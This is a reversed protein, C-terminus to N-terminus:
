GDMFLDALAAGAEIDAPNLAELAIPDFQADGSRVGQPVAAAMQGVVPREANITMYQEPNAHYALSVAAFLVRFDQGQNLDFGDLLNAAEQHAADADAQRFTVAEQLPKGGLPTALMAAVVPQIDPAFETMAHAPYLQRWGQSVSDSELGLADLLAFNLLMRLHRTPYSGWKPGQIREAQVLQPDALLYDMLGLVYAGGCCLVGYVDAFVERAWALWAPVRAPDVGAEALAAMRQDVVTELGFDRELAHGVEHAIAVSAPLHNVQFWPLGIVPIPLKLIAAGLLKVDELSVNEPDFLTERAQAFPTALSSYFILPPEKFATAAITGASEAQARAPRYCAWALEDACLLEKRFLEVDRLALKTRFYDWLRHGNLLLRQAQTNGAFTAASLDDPLEVRGLLGELQATIRAIQTHHKELEKGEDARARWDDFEARLTKQQFRLAAAQQQVLEM